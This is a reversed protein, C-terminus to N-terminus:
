YRHGQTDMFTTERNCAQVSDWRREATIGFHGRVLAVIDRHRLTKPGFQGSVKAGTGFHRRSVEASTSFHM